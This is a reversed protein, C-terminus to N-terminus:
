NDLEDLGTMILQRIVEQRPLDYERALDDVRNVLQDDCVISVRQAM